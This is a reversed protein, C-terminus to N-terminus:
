KQKTIKIGIWFHRRSLFSKSLAGQAQRTIDAAVRYASLCLDVSTAKLSDQSATPSTPTLPTLWPARTLAPFLRVHARCVEEMEAESIKWAADELTDPDPFADDPKPKDDLTFGM